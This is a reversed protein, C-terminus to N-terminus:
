REGMFTVWYPSGTVDLETAKKAGVLGITRLLNARPLVLHIVSKQVPLTWRVPNYWVALLEQDEFEHFLHGICFDALYHSAALSGDFGEIV